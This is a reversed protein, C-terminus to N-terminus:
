YYGFTKPPRASPFRQHLGDLLAQGFRRALDDHLKHDITADRAKVQDRNVALYPFGGRLEGTGLEVLLANGHVQGGEFSAAGETRPLRIEDTVVVLVHTARAVQELHRKYFKAHRRDIYDHPQTMLGLMQLCVRVPDFDITAFRLSLGVRTTLGLDERMAMVGSGTEVTFDIEVDGTPWGVTSWSHTDAMQGARQMAELKPM